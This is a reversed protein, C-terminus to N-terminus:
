PNLAYAPATGTSNSTGNFSAGLPVSNTPTYTYACEMFRITYM